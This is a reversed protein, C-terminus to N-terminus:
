ALSGGRALLMAVALAAAALTLHWGARPRGTCAAAVVGGVCLLALGALLVPVAQTRDGPPALALLLVAGSLLVAAAIVSGSAGLRHPLGRVGTRADDALDPLTNAFHAGAGLLAAAGIAWWPPDPASPLGGTVLVPLLGFAVVYPLASLVTSKLGLNYGWAIAVGALHATGARPGSAYSLPVCALVAGVAAVAVTREGVLGSVIPKEERGSARDRECDIWDNSWGVSLQGALVALGVGASSWGRGASVALLTMVATVVATPAPHSARVLGRIPQRSEGGAIILPM